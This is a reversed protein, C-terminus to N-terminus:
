LDLGREEAMKLGRELYEALPVKSTMGRIAEAKDHILAGLDEHIRRLNPDKDKGMTTVALLKMVVDDPLTKLFAGAADNGGSTQMERSPRAGDPAEAAPPMGSLRIIERAAAVIKMLHGQSSRTPPPVRDVEM